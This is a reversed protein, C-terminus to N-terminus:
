EQVPEGAEEEEERPPLQLAIAQQALDKFASEPLAGPQSFVITRQKVIMITPISMIKFAQSLGPNNDVDVKAVRIQGAFEEALKELIPAVMRCPGCWEAWYDIIVPMTNSYELVEAEFTADTVHIPKNNPQNNVPKQESQQEALSNPSTDPQNATLAAQMKEIALPVDTGWPRSRRVIEQGNYWGVLIPKDGVGFRTAAQPNQSPDVQGFIYKANESAAKKFASTFDGRLGNGNSFLIFVPKDGNLVNDLTTDTIVVPGQM